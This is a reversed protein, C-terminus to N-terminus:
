ASRCLGDMGGMVAGACGMRRGTSTLLLCYKSGAVHQLLRVESRATGATGWRKRQIRNEGQKRGRHKDPSLLTSTSCSCTIHLFPSFRLPRVHCCCLTSAFSCTILFLRLMGHIGSGEGGGGGRAGWERETPRMASASVGPPIDPSGSTLPICARPVGYGGVNSENLTNDHFRLHQCQFQFVRGGVIVSIPAIGPLVAQPTTETLRVTLSLDMVEAYIRRPRCRGTSGSLHSVM